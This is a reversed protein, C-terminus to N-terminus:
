TQKVLDEVQDAQAVDAQLAIAEGGNATIEATLAQAATASQAYNVVVQAGEAALALAISRGIGRSAGTVIAVQGGLPTSSPAM